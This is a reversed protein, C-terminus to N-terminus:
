NRGSEDPYLQYVPTSQWYDGTEAEMITLPGKFAAGTDVNIVNGFRVPVTKGIRTVPTHGIYIEKFLKMRKPYRLDDQALNPDLAKATEWLTRDWFVLNKFYEHQPGHLNTFGAHVFLRSQDDIHYLTLSDYFAKHRALKDSDMSQYNQRTIAGGSRLWLEPADGKNLYQQILYDHNGKIFICDAKGALDILFDVTEVAESWGDVYDGLFIYRDTYKLHDLEFLERLARYGGHIDGIVYTKM